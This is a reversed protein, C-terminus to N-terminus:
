DFLRINIVDFSEYRNQNPLRRVTYHKQLIDNIPKLENPVNM